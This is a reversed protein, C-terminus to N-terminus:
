AAAAASSVATQEKSGSSKFGFNELFDMLVEILSVDNVEVSLAFATLGGVVFLRKGWYWLPRTRREELRAARREERAAAERALIDARFTAERDENPDVEHEAIFKEYDAQRQAARDRIESIYLDAKQRADEAIREFAAYAELTAREIVPTIKEAFDRRADAAASEIMAVAAKYKANEDILSFALRRMIKEAVTQASVENMRMKDLCHELTAQDISMITILSAADLDRMLLATWKYTLVKAMDNAYDAEKLRARQIDLRHRAWKSPRPAKLKRILFRRYRPDDLRSEDIKLPEVKFPSEVTFDLLGLGSFSKMRANWSTEERSASILIEYVRRGFVTYLDEARRKFTLTSNNDM